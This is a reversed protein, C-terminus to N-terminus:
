YSYGFYEIDKEYRKHVLRRLRTDYYDRYLREDQQQKRNREQLHLDSVGIRTKVHEFDQTLNEFRGVFDAASHGSSDCITLHQSRFHGNASGDSIQCVAEIFEAFPMRPYFKAGNQRANASLYGPVKPRNIKDRYCSVLRDFPNRTFAFKFYDNYEEHLGDLFAERSVQYNSDNFVDHVIFHRNGDQRTFEYPTPDLEFLSLLSAKVSSCAVKQVWLYIFKREKHVIYNYDPRSSLGPKKGKSDALQRKLEEIRTDRKRLRAQLIRVREEDTKSSAPEVTLTLRRDRHRPLKIHIYRRFDPM